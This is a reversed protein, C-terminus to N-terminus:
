LAGKVLPLKTSILEVIKKCEVETGIFAFRVQEEGILWVGVGFRCADPSDALVASSDAPSDASDAEQEIEEISLMSVQDLNILDHDPTIIWSM